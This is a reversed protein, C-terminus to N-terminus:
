GGKTILWIIIGGNAALMVWFAKILFKRFQTNQSVQYIIGSPEDSDNPGRLIRILTSVNDKIERIDQRVENDNAMENFTM